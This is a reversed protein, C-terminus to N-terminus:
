AKPYGDLYAVTLAEPDDTATPEAPQPALSDKYARLEQAGVMPDVASHNRDAALLEFRRIATEIPDNLATRDRPDMGGDSSPGHTYGASDTKVPEAPQPAENIISLAYNARSKAWRVFEDPSALEEWKRWDAALIMELTEIVEQRIDVPEGRRKRGDIWERTAEDGLVHALQDFSIPAIIGRCMNTHVHIPNRLLAATAQRDAKIAARAYAEMKGKKWLPAFTGNDYHDADPTPLPPLKIDHTNM